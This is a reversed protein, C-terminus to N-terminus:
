SPSRVGHAYDPSRCEGRRNQDARQEDRRRDGNRLDLKGVQCATNDIVRMQEVTAEFGPQCLLELLMLALGAVLDNDDGEITQLLARDLLDPDIQASFPPTPCSPRSM